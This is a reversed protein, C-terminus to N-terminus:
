KHNLKFLTMVIFIFITVPFRFVTKKKDATQYTNQKKRMVMKTNM